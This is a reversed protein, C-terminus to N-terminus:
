SIIILNYWKEKWQRGGVRGYVEGLESEFEHGRKYSIRIRHM